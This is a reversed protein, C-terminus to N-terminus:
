MNSRIYTNWDSGYKNEGVKMVREYVSFTYESIPNSREFNIIANISKVVEILKKDGALKAALLRAAMHDNRDTLKAMDDAFKSLDQKENLFEQFSM